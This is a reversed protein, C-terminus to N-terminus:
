TSIKWSTCVDLTSHCLAQLELSRGIAWITSCRKAETQSLWMPESGSFVLAQLGAMWWPSEKYSTHLPSCVRRVPIRLIRASVLHQVASNQSAPEM